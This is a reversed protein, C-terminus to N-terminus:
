RDKPVHATEAVASAAYIADTVVRERQGPAASSAAAIAAATVAKKLQLQDHTESTPTGHESANPASQEM